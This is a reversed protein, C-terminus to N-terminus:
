RNSPGSGSHRVSAPAVRVTRIGAQSLLYVIQNEWYEIADAKGDGDVDNAVDTDDAADDLLFANFITRGANAIFITAKGPESSETTGALATGTGTPDGPFTDVGYWVDSLATFDPVDNPTSFIPHTAVWRYIPHVDGGPAAGSTSGLTGWLTHTPFPDSQWTSIALHGGANVFNEINTLFSTDGSSPNDVVILQWGQAAMADNFATFDNTETFTYGGNSM